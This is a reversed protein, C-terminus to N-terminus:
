AVNTACSACLGNIVINKMRMLFGSTECQTRILSLGNDHQEEISGCATCALILGEHECDFHQCVLFGNLAEVKHLLGHEVLFDFVRYVTPPAATTRAAQLDNLVQYAKVLGDYNLTLALVQRRLDTLKVGKKACFQEAKEIFQTKNTPSKLM